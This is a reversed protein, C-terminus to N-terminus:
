DQQEYMMDIREKVRTYFNKGYETGIHSDYKTTPYWNLDESRVGFFAAVTYSAIFTPLGRKIHVGDERLIDTYLLKEQFKVTRMTSGANISFAIRNDYEMLKDRTEQISDNIEKASSFLGDSVDSRNWPTFLGITANDNFKQIRDIYDSIDFKRKNDGTYYEIGCEKFVNQQIIIYDWDEDLIAEKLKIKRRIESQGLKTEDRRNRNKEPDSYYKYYSFSEDGKRFHKYRRSMISGRIFATGITVNKYGAKEFIKYLYRYGMYTHSNGIALIKVEQDKNIKFNDIFQAKESTQSVNQVYATEGARAQVTGVVSM